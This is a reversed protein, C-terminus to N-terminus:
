YQWCVIILTFLEVGKRKGQREVNKHEKNVEKVM